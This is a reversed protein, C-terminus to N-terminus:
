VAELNGYTIEDDEMEVNCWAKIECRGGSSTNLCRGTTPGNGAEFVVGSRNNSDLCASNMEDLDDPNM